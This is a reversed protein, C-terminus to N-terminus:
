LPNEDNILELLKRRMTVEDMDSEYEDRKKLEKKVKKTSLDQVYRRRGANTAMLKRHVKDKISAVLEDCYELIDLERDSLKDNERRLPGTKKYDYITFGMFESHVYKALLEFYRYKRENHACIFVIDCEYEYYSKILTAIFPKNRGLKEIYSQAYESHDFDDKSEIIYAIDPFLMSGNCVKSGLIKEESKTFSGKIIEGSVIVFQTQLIEDPTRDVLYKTILTKGDMFYMM